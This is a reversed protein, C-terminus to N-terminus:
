LFDLRKQLSECNKASYVFLEVKLGNKHAALQKQRRIGADANSDNNDANGVACAFSHQENETVYGRNDGVGYFVANHAQM